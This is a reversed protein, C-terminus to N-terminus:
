PQDDRGLKMYYWGKEDQGFVFHGGENNSDSVLAKLRSDAHDWKEEARRAQGAQKPPAHWLKGSDTIFYYDQGVIVAAFPEVRPAKFQEIETVVPSNWRKNKNDYQEEIRYITMRADKQEGLKGTLEFRTIEHNGVAVIDRFMTTDKGFSEALREVRGSHPENWFLGVFGFHPWKGGDSDIPFNHGALFPEAASRYISEDVFVLERGVKRDLWVRSSRVAVTSPEDIDGCYTFVHDADRGTWDWVYVRLEGVTRAHAIGHHGYVVGRVLPEAKPDALLVSPSIALVFFTAFFRSM